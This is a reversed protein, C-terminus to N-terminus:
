LLLLFFLFKIEIYKPNLLTSARKENKTERKENKSRFIENMNKSVLFLVLGSVLVKTKLQLIRLVKFLVSINWYELRKIIM